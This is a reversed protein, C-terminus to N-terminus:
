HCAGISARRMRISALKKDGEVPAIPKILLVGDEPLNQIYNSLEKYHIDEYVAKWDHNAAHQACTVPSEIKLRRAKPSASVSLSSRGTYGCFIRETSTGKERRNYRVTIEM